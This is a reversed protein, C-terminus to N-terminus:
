NRISHKELAVKRAHTIYVALSGYNINMGLPCSTTSILQSFGSKVIPSIGAISKKPSPLKYRKSVGPTLRIKRAPMFTDCECIGIYCQGPCREANAWTLSFEKTSRPASTQWWGPWSLGLGCICLFKGQGPPMRASREFGIKLM